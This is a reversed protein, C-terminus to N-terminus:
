RGRTERERTLIRVIGNPGCLYDARDGWRLTLEDAVKIEGPWMCLDGLNPYPCGSVM